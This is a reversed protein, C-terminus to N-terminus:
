RRFYRRRDGLYNGNADYSPSHTWGFANWLLDFTLQMEREIAVDPDQLLVEPLILNTRDLTRVEPEYHAAPDTSGRFGKANLLAILFYYPAPIQLLRTITLMREACEMFLIELFSLPIYPGDDALYQHLFDANVNEIVGNRYVNSYAFVRDGRRMLNAYGDFTITPTFVQPPRGTPYLRTAVDQPIKNAAVLQENSAFAALPVAHIVMLNRDALPWLADNNQLRFTREARFERLRESAAEAGAFAARIEAVDLEAKGSSTRAIFAGRGMIMHPGFLGRSIEVILVFGGSVKVAELRFGQLAPQIRTRVISEIRLKADDVATESIPIFRRPIGKEAEVGFIIHGGVGNAFSVVDRALEKKADETAGPLARKYELTRGEIVGATILQLLDEETIHDLPKAFTFM